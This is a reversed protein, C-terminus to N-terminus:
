PQGGRQVEIRRVALEQQRREEIPRGVLALMQGGCGQAPVAFALMAEAAVDVKGDLPRLAIAEPSGACRLELGIAGPLGSLTRYEIRATYNGPPLTLLQRALAGPRRGYYIVSLGGSKGFEAAGTEDTTLQWNFPPGARRDTFDPSHVPGRLDKGLGIGWLARAEGFAQAGVLLQISIQRVEPDSFTSQPLRTVLAVALSPEKNARAFGILFPRYLEPHPTLADVAAIVQERSALSQGFAAMLKDMAGANLRNLVALQDIAPGLQGTGLAHRLLLARAERSRPNRRLAERLLAADQATGFSEKTRFGAAGAGFFPEAALPAVPLALRAASAIGAPPLGANDLQRARLTGLQGTPLLTGLGLLAGRPTAALQATFSLGAVAALGAAFGLAVRRSHRRVPQEPPHSAM